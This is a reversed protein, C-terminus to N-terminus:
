PPASGYYSGSCWWRTKKTDGRMNYKELQSQTAKEEPDDPDKFTAETKKTTILIWMQRGYKAGEFEGSAKRTKLYYNKDAQTKSGYTFIHRRLEKISILESRHHSPSPTPAAVMKKKALVV